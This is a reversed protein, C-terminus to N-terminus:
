RPSPVMVPNLVLLKNSAMPPATRRNIRYRKMLLYGWETVVNSRLQLSCKKKGSPLDLSTQLFFISDRLIRGFGDRSSLPHQDLSHTVIERVAPRPRLDDLCDRVMRM